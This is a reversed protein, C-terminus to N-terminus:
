KKEKIRATKYNENCYNNNSKQYTSVVRNFYKIGKNDKLDNSNYSNSSYYLIRSRKKKFLCRIDSIEGQGNNNYEKNANFLNKNDNKLNNTTSRSNIIKKKNYVDVTNTKKMTTETSTNYNINQNDKDENFEIKIASNSRNRLYENNHINIDIPIKESINDAKNVEGLSNLINLNNRMINSESSGSSLKSEYNNNESIKFDINNFTYQTKNYNKINTVSNNFTNCLYNKKCEASLNNESFDFNRQFISTIKPSNDGLVQKSSTTVNFIQNENKLNVKIKKNYPMIVRNNKEDKNKSSNKEKENLYYSNQHRSTNSVPININLINYKKDRIEKYNFYKKRSIVDAIINPIQITNLNNGARANNNENDNNRERKTFCYKQSDQINSNIDFPNENFIGSKYCCNNNKNNIFNNIVYFNMKNEKKNSNPLSQNKNIVNNFNTNSAINNTPTETKKEKNKLSKPSKSSTYSNKNRVYTHFKDNNINNNEFQKANLKQHINAYKKNNSKHTIYINKNNKNLYNNNNNPSNNRININSNFNFKNKIHRNTYNGSIQSNNSESKIFNNNPVNHPQIEIKTNKIRIYDIPCEILAQKDNSNLETLCLSKKKYQKKLDINMSLNETVTKINSNQNQKKQQFPLNNSLKFEKLHNPSNIKRNYVSGKIETFQKNNIIKNNENSVTKIYVHKDKEKKSKNFSTNASNEQTKFSVKTKCTANKNNKEYINNNSSNNKLYSVKDNSNAFNIENSNRTKFYKRKVPKTSLKKKDEINEQKKFIKDKDNIQLIYKKTLYYTATYKNCKYDEIMKKLEDETIEINQSYYNKMIYSLVEKNVFMKENKSLFIGKYMPSNDFKFWVHNKIEKLTIRKKPDVQLIRKLLDIAELSLTSPLYFKGLKIQKYLEILEQDDFPLSGVLMSYLTIGSSWLDITIGQYPKGSLMEPSAYCPSGCSSKLFKADECYNSLGFDILKINKHEKDLLINEPKIDRHSIGMENLYEIVSIIQRYYFCSQQESLFSHSTIYDFLDGGEIYEMMLYYNHLTSYTEYLQCINPHIIKKLIEMERLIREIDIEDEIKEKELIKVAVSQNTIIHTARSVKSFTGIGIQNSLIYNGIQKLYKPKMPKLQKTQETKEIKVEIENNMKITDNLNEKDETKNDSSSM